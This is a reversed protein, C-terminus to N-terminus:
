RDAAGPPPAIPAGAAPTDSAKGPFPFKNPLNRLGYYAAIAVCAAVVNLVIAFGAHRDERYGAWAEWQAGCRAQLVPGIRWGAAEPVIKGGIQELCGAFMGFALIPTVIVLIQPIQNIIAVIRGIKPAVILFGVAALTLLWVVFFLVRIPSPQQMWMVVGTTNDLASFALYGILLFRVLNRM